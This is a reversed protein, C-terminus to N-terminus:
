KDKRYLNKRKLWAGTDRSHKKVKRYYEPNKPLETLEGNV